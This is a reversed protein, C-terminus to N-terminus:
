FSYYKKFFLNTLYENLQNNKKILYKYLLKSDEFGQLELLSITGKRYKKKLLENFRINEVDALEVWQMNSIPERLTARM